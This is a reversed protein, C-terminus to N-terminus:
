ASEDGSDKKDRITKMNVAPSRGAVAPSGFEVYKM